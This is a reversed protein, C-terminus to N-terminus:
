LSIRSQSKRKRSLIDTCTRIYRTDPNSWKAKPLHYWTSRSLIYRLECQTLCFYRWYRYIAACEYPNAGLVTERRADYEHYWHDYEGPPFPSIMARRADLTRGRACHANRRSWFPDGSNRHYHWTQPRTMDNRPRPRHVEHLSCYPSSSHLWIFYFSM